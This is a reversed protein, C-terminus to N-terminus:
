VVASVEARTGGSGGAQQQQIDLLMASWARANEAAAQICTANQHPLNPFTKAQV